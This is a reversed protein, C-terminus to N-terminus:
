KPNQRTYAGAETVEKLQDLGYDFSQNTRWKMKLGALKEFPDLGVDFDM